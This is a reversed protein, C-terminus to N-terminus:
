DSSNHLIEMVESLSGKVSSDMMQRPGVDSLADLNKTTIQEVPITQKPTADASKDTFYRIIINGLKSLTNPEVPDNNYFKGEHFISNSPQQVNSKSALQNNM